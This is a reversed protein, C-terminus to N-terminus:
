RFQFLQIVLINIQLSKLFKRLLVLSEEVGGELHLCADLVVHHPGVEPVDQDLITHSHKM